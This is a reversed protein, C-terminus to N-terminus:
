IPPDVKVGAYLTLLAEHIPPISPEIDDVAMFKSDITDPPGCPKIPARPLINLLIPLENYEENLLWTQEEAFISHFVTDPEMLLVALKGLVNPCAAVLVTDLVAPPASLLVSPLEVFLKFWVIEGTVLRGYV